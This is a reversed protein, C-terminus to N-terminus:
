LGWSRQVHCGTLGCAGPNCTRATANYNLATVAMASAPDELTPTNLNRSIVPLALDHCGLGQANMDSDLHGVARWRSGTSAVATVGRKSYLQMPVAHRVTLTSPTISRQRPRQKRFPLPLRLLICWRLNILIMVYRVPWRCPLVTETPITYTSITIARIIATTRPTGPQRASCM